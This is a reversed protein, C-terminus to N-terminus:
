DLYGHNFLQFIIIIFKNLIESEGSGFGGYSLLTCNHGNLFKLLKPKVIDCFLLDQSADGGFIKTFTYKKLINGKKENQATHLTEPIKCTLTREDLIEYLSDKRSCPKM